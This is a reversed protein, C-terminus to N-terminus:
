LIFHIQKTQGLVAPRLPRSKLEPDQIPPAYLSHSTEMLQANGGPRVRPSLSDSCDSLIGVAQACSGGGGADVLM